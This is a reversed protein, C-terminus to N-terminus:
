RAFQWRRPDIVDLIDVALHTARTAVAGEWADLIDELQKVDDVGVVCFQVNPLGKIISLAGVLPSIRKESCWDHWRQLALAAAPVHGTAAEYPMLLLGQLFASRLSIEAGGLADSVNVLRQDLANGPLQIMDFRTVCEKLAIEDVDYVSVGLELGLRDCSQRAQHWVSGCGTTEVDAVNHFLIGRLRQGLRNYSSEISANVFANPDDIQDPLAPIKSVIEFDLDGILGALRQEIDGYAAATDLRRIGAKAALSLIDKASEASVRQGRSHLGYDLGFQVTGLALEM